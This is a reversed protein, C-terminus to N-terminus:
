ETSDFLDKQKGGNNKRMRSLIEYIYPLSLGFRQVLEHHNNGTFADWIKVDRQHLEWPNNKTVYFMSGGWHKTLHNAISNAVQSAIRPDINLSEAITDGGIERLDQFFRDAQQNYMGQKRKSM